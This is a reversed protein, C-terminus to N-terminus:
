SISVVNSWFINLATIHVVKHFVAKLNLKPGQFTGWGYFAHFHFHMNKPQPVKGPGFDFRFFTRMFDSKIVTRIKKKSRKQRYHSFLFFPNGM